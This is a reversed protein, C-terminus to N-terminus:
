SSQTDTLDMRKVCASIMQWLIDCIELKTTQAVEVKALFM